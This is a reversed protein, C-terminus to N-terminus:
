NFSQGKLICLISEECVGKQYSAIVTAAVTLSIM